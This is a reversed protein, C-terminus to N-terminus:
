IRMSSGSANCSESSEGNFQSLIDRLKQKAEEFKLAAKTVLLQERTLPERTLPDTHHEDIWSMIASSYMQGQPTIYGEDTIEDFTIPCVPLDKSEMKDLAAQARELMTQPAQMKKFVNFTFYEGFSFYHEDRTSEQRTPRVINDFTIGINQITQILSEFFQEKNKNSCLQEKNIFIYNQNDIQFQREENPIVCWNYEPTDNETFLGMIGAGFGDQLNQVYAYRISSLAYTNTEHNYQLRDLTIAGPLSASERILFLDNRFNPNTFLKENLAKQLKIKGEKQTIAVFILDTSPGHASM